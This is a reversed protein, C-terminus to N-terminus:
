CGIRSCRLYQRLQNCRTKVAHFRNKARSGASGSPESNASLVASSAWDCVATSAALKSTKPQGLNASGCARSSNTIRPTGLQVPWFARWRQHGLDRSHSSRVRDDCGPANKSPHGALASLLEEHGTCNHHFTK